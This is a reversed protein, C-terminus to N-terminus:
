KKFRLKGALFSYNMIILIALIIIILFLGTNLYFDLDYVTVLVEKERSEDKDDIIMIKLSYNELEKFTYNFSEGSNIINDDIFWKIESIDGDEDFSNRANLIHERNLFAISENGEIIIIAGKNNPNFDDEDLIGDNDDDKDTNDGLNDKDFDTQESPDLPFADEFDNVSDEDTDSKFPDTGKIEELNDLLGDNDDDTDANDGTGDEDTDKSELSNFPYKDDIDLTGDNDDDEDANDGMRDGDTDMSESADLPFMDDENLVGDNDKDDDESDTIGDHDTDKLVVITKTVYNNSADDGSSIWPDISVSIVHQGEYPPAWEVFVDDTGHTFISVNQDSGIQNGTTQNTFTVNGRLDQSSLNHITAYITVTNGELLNNTSFRVQEESLSLDANSQAFTTNFSFVFMLISGIIISLINRM